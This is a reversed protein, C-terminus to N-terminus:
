SCVGNECSNKCTELLVADYDTNCYANCSGKDMCINQQGNGYRNGDRCFTDTTITGGCQEDSVCTVPRSCKDPLLFYLTLAALTIGVLICGILFYRNM